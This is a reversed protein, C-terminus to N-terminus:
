EGVYNNEFLKKTLSKAKNYNEIAENKKSEFDKNIFDSVSKVCDDISEGNFSNGIVGNRNNCFCICVKQNRNTNFIIKFYKTDFYIPHLKVLELMSDLKKNTM